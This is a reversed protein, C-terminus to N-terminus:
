INAIFVPDIINFRSKLAERDEVSKSNQEESPIAGERNEHNQESSSPIASEVSKVVGKSSQLEERKAIFFNMSRRVLQDSSYRNFEVYNPVDELFSTKKSLFENNFRGKSSSKPLEQNKGLHQDDSIKNVDLSSSMSLPTPSSPFGMKLSNKLQNDNSTCAKRASMAVYEEDGHTCPSNEGNDESVDALTGDFLVKPISHEISTDWSGTMSVSAACETTNKECPLPLPERTIMNECPDQHRVEEYIRESYSDPKDPPQSTYLIEHSQYMKAYIESSEPRVWEYVERPVDIGKCKLCVMFKDKFKEIRAMSAM